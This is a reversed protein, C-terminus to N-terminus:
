LVCALAIKFLELIHAQLGSPLTVIPTFQKDYIGTINNCYVRKEIGQPMEM